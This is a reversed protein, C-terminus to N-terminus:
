KNRPSKSEPMAVASPRTGIWNLYLTRRRHLIFPIWIVWGVFIVNIYQWLWFIENDPFHGLFAPRAWPDSASNFQQQFAFPPIKFFAITVLGAQSGESGMSSPVSVEKLLEEPPPVFEDFFSSCFSYTLFASRASNMTRMSLGEVRPELYLDEGIKALSHLAKAFVAFIYQHEMFRGKFNLM